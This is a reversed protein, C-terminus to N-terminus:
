HQLPLPNPAATAAHFAVLVEPCHKIPGGDGGVGGDGEGGDGEGDGGDGEGEGGDGDGGPGSLFVHGGFAVSRIAKKGGLMLPPSQM